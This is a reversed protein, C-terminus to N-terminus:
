APAAALLWGFAGSWTFASGLGQLLRAAFLADYSSAFAFGLGAFGMMALGILVGRRPGLRAALLGGPLGGLLAGAAYAAALVGASSKSLHLEHAFHPLLPTLAAYLITDVFVLAGVLVTLRRM